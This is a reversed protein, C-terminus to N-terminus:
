NQSVLEPGIECEYSYASSKSDPLEDGVEPLSSYFVDKYGEKLGVLELMTKHVLAADSNDSWATALKYLEVLNEEPNTFDFDLASAANCLAEAENLSPNRTRDSWIPQFLEGRTFEIFEDKDETSSFFYKSYIKQSLNEVFNDFAQDSVGCHWAIHTLDVLPLSYYDRHSDFTISYHPHGSWALNHENALLMRLNALLQYLAQMDKRVDSALRIGFNFVLQSELSEAFNEYDGVLCHLEDLRIEDESLAEKFAHKMAERLNNEAVRMDIREVRRQIDEVMAKTESVEVGIQNVAKLIKRCQAYNAATLVLVGTTALLNVGALAPVLAGAGVGGGSLISSSLGLGALGEDGVPMYRINNPNFIPGDRGIVQYALRGVQGAGISDFPVEM